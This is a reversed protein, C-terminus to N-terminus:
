VTAPLEYGKRRERDLLKCAEPDDPFTEAVPDWKLRRGTWRAINGLHCVTTSRHGIEVDAIPRRRSKICDLWNRMHDNSAELHIEDARIPEKLIEEPDATLKSRHIELTGKEGVFIAGGPNSRGLTLKLGNAYRFCVTPKDCQKDGVDQATPEHFTPPDFKPGEAWVEVPGTEDMGLAWQVQDLGHAGWGTMEGGSYPRFSIWGPKARPTFLDIHFPVLPTPGCWTEWDLGEPVPQGPLACEWPSPYNHAIVEKLPGLRGNRILECGFRNQRDSRQQSGTQVVRDYKRAAEVMRRGEVITLSLPKEAYVDKGAQCAHITTLARWHDVTATLIADIDKRELVKRYETAPEGKYKKAMAESRPRYIDCLVAIKADAFKQVEDLIQQCRRGVGIGAVIIRDNAGPQQGPRALVGSPIVLPAAVTAVASRLFGRRSSTM